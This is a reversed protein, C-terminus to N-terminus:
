QVEEKRPAKPAVPVLDQYQKLRDRGQKLLQRINPHNKGLQEAIERTSMGDMVLRVVERQAATLCGLLQEAHEQEPPIALEDDLCGEPTLHGGRLERTRRERERRDAKAFFNSAAKRVYATPHSIVQGAKSRRCFDLMAEQVAEEAEGLSAGSSVLFKVLGPYGAKYFAEFQRPTM